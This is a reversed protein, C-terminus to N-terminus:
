GKLTVVIYAYTRHDATTERSPQFRIEKIEPALYKKLEGVGGQPNPMCFVRVRGPDSTVWEPRLARIVGLATFGEFGALDAETIPATNNVVWEGQGASACGAAVVLMFSIALNRM